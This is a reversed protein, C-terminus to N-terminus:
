NPDGANFRVRGSFQDNSYVFPKTLQFIQSAFYILSWRCFVNALFMFVVVSQQISKAQLLSITVAPLLVSSTKGVANIRKLPVKM